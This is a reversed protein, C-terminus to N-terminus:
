WGGEETDATWKAWVDKVAGALKGDSKEATDFRQVAGTFRLPIDQTEGYRSKAHHLTIAGADNPNQKLIRQALAVAQPPNEDELAHAMGLLAPGYEPDTKLAEQFSKSAEAKNYKELFLDGWETNIRPDTPAVGIADRFFSQADDVRNLARSARAARLYDRASPRAVDALLVQTLARRGEVRKGIGLQLLGLELTADGGSNSVTFPQLISEARPYDGRAAVALAHYVAIQQDKPFAQALTDIEDFRGARFSKDATARSAAVNQAQATVRPALGATLAVAFVLLVFRRAMM